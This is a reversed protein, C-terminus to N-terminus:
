RNLKKTHGAGFVYGLGQEISEFATFVMDSLASTTTTPPTAPRHAAMVAARLSAVTFNISVAKETPPYAIPNTKGKILGTSRIENIASSDPM